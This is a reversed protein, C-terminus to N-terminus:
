TWNKCPTEIMFWMKIVGYEELDLKRPTKNSGKDKHYFLHHDASVLCTGRACYMQTPGLRKWVENGVEPRVEQFGGRANSPPNMVAWQVPLVFSRVRSLVERSLPFLEDGEKKSELSDMASCYDYWLGGGWIRSHTFLSPGLPSETIWGDGYSLPPSRPV